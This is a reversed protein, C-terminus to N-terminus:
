KRDPTCQIASLHMRLQPGHLELLEGSKRSTVRANGELLMQDESWEIVLRDCVGEVTKGTIAVKGLAVINGHKRTLIMKDSHVMLFLGKDTRATLLSRGNAVEM